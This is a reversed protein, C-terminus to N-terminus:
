EAVYYELTGDESISSVQIDSIVGEGAGNIDISATPLVFLTGPILTFQTYSDSVHLLVAIDSAGKNHLSLYKWTVFQGNAVDAGQKLISLLTDAPLIVTRNDVQDVSEITLTDSSSYEKGSVTVDATVSYILNAM